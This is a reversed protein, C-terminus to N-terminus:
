EKTLAVNIGADVAYNTVERCTLLEVAVLSVRNLKYDVSHCRALLSAVAYHCREALSHALALPLHSNVVVVRAFHAM